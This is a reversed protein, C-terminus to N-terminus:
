PDRPLVARVHERWEEPDLELCIMCDVMKERCINYAPCERVVEVPSKPVKAARPQPKKKLKVAM